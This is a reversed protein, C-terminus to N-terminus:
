KLLLYVMQGMSNIVGARQGARTGTGMFLDVRAPGKIAGGADHGFVWRTVTPSGFVHAAVPNTLEIQALALAGPPLAAADTAMSHEPVLPAGISGTVAAGRTERFFVFRRNRPLYRNMEQPEARFYDTLAPLTLKEFPMVGAKVLERGMSTYTHNTHGGYSITM